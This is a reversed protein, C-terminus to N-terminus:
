RALHGLPGAPAVLGAAEQPAIGARLPGCYGPGAEYKQFMVYLAGKDTVVFPQDLRVGGFPEFLPCEGHELARHALATIRELGGQALAHGLEFPTGTPMSLNLTKVTTQGHAAHEFYLYRECSVSLVKPGARHATCNVVATVLKGGPPPTIEALARLRDNIRKEVVKDGLGEVVPWSLTANEVGPLSRNTNWYLAYGRDTAPEPSFWTSSFYGVLSVLVLLCGSILFIKKNM